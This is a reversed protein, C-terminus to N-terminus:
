SVVAFSAKALARWVQESTLRSALAAGVAAPRLAERDTLEPLKSTVVMTADGEHRLESVTEIDALLRRHSQVDFDSV